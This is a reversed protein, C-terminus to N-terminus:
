RIQTRKRRNQSTTKKASCMPCKVDSGGNFSECFGSLDLSKCRPTWNVNQREVSSDGRTGACDVEFEDLKTQNRAHKTVYIDYNEALLCAPGGIYDKCWNVQHTDACYTPPLSLVKICRLRGVCSGQEDPAYADDDYEKLKSVPQVPSEHDPFHETVTDAETDVRHVDDNADANEEPTDKGLKGAARLNVIAAAATSAFLFNIIKM